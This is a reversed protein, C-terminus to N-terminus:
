TWCIRSSVSRGTRPASSRRSRTLTPRSAPPRKASCRRPACRSSASRHACTTRCWASCTRARACRAAPKTTCGRTTSRPPPACRSAQALSLDAEAYSAAGPGRALMLAGLTRGHAHLPLIIFSSLQLARLLELHEDDEALSRLHDDTVAPWSSPPERKSAARALYHTLQRPYGALREVLAQMTADGHLVHARQVAGTADLVEVVCCSALEPVILHLLADFTQEVALSSHLIEGIDALFTMRQEAREAATRAAFTRALMAAREKAARREQSVDRLLATFYTADGVTLRSISSEAPFLEGSKRRGWV